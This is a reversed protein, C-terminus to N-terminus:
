TTSNGNQKTKQKYCDCIWCLYSKNDLSSWEHKGFPCKLFFKYHNEWSGYYLIQSLKRNIDFMRRIISQFWPGTTSKDKWFENQNM